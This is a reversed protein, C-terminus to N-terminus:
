CGIPKGSRDGVKRDRLTITKTSSVTSGDAAKASLTVPYRGPSAKAGKGSTGAVPYFRGNKLPVTFTYCKSAKGGVSGISGGGHKAFTGSARILGDFRRPLQGHTKVVVVVLKKGLNPKFADYYAYGSVIKISAPTAPRTAALVAGAPLATAGATTALALLPLLRSRTM